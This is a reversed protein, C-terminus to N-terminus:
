RTVEGTTTNVAVGYLTPLETIAVDTSDQYNDNGQQKNGGCSMITLASLAIIGIFLVKKM